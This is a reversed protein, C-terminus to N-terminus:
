RKKRLYIVEETRPEEGYKMRNRKYLPKLKIGYLQSIYLMTEGPEVRHTLESKGAKRHKAEVYIVENKQPRYGEPQDNFKYLEWAKKGLEQAIIEYTDGERAVVTKLNNRKSIQHAQYPNIFLGNIFEKSKFHDRESAALQENSLQYDLRYLQNEEIIKILRQAYDPATAYGARKLGHAWGVYDDHNLQFLSFYRPNAMLFNTHDIFSEEVTDYKRFCENREDDDYKVTKGTWTSKCKIGFHNNSMKSLPSNGNSSELCAQAMKISAPIGSRNMEEIALLQYQEIYEKRTTQSLASFVSFTLLVTFLFYRM